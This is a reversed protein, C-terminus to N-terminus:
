YDIWEVTNVCESCGVCEDTQISVYFEAPNESACMPCIKHETDDLRHREMADIARFDDNSYIM